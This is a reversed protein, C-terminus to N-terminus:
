NFLKQCLYNWEPRSEQLGELKRDDWGIKSDLFPVSFVQTKGCLAGVGFLKCFVSFSLELTCMGM